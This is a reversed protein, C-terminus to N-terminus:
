FKLKVQGFEAGAIAIFGNVTFIAFAKEKFVLIPSIDNRESNISLKCM